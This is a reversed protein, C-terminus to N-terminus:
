QELAGVTQWISVKRLEPWGVEEGGLPAAYAQLQYGRGKGSVDPFRSDLLPSEGTNELLAVYVNHQFIITIAIIGSPYYCKSVTLEVNKFKESMAEDPQVKFEFFSNASDGELWKSVSEGLGMNTLRDILEKLTGESEIIQTEVLPAIDQIYALAAAFPSTTPV